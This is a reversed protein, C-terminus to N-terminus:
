LRGELTRTRWEDDRRAVKDACVVVVATSRILTLVRFETVVLANVDLLIFISLRVCYGPNHGNISSIGAHDDPPRTASRTIYWLSQVNPVGINAPLTNDVGVIGMHCIGRASFGVYNHLICLLHLLALYDAVLAVITSTRYM